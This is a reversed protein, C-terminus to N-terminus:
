LQTMIDIHTAFFITTNTVIHTDIARSARKDRVQMGCLRFQGNRRKIIIIIIVLVIIIRYDGVCEIIVDHTNM